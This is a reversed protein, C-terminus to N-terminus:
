CLTNMDEKTDIDKLEMPDTTEYLTLRNPYTAVVCSGGVDGTLRQLADYLDSPFIVPNGRRGLYGLAVIRTPDEEWKAIMGSLTKSTVYPQDGVSFLIADTQSGAAAVGLQVSHSLGLHTNANELIRFGYSEALMAAEGAASPVVAVRDCFPLGGAAALIHALMPIGNVPMCLKDEGFRSASGAATIM